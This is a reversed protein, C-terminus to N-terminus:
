SIIIDSYKVFYIQARKNPHSCSISPQLFHTAVFFLHCTQMDCRLMNSTVNLTSFYRTANHYTVVKVNCSPMNTNRRLISANSLPVILMNTTNADSSVQIHACSVLGYASSVVNVTESQETFQMKSLRSNQLNVIVVVVFKIVFVQLEPQFICQQNGM